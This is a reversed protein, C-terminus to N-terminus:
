NTTHYHHVGLELAAEHLPHPTLTGSFDLVEDRFIEEIKRRGVNSKLVLEEYLLPFPKEPDLQYGKKPLEAADALKLLLDEWSPGRSLRNLGNGLLVVGPEASKRSLGSVPAKAM